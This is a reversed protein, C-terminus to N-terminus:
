PREEVLAAERALAAAEATLDIGVPCWTVCRGCGVCGSTGFQDVWTSLKHTMWQRYRSAVSARVPGGHVHSFDATFCSDWQRDRAHTGTALDSVEVVSTCFCTPCVMTCNGCALCRSAVEEWRPSTAAQRLLTPLDTDPMRKQICEAVAASQAQAAERDGRDATAAGLEALLSAGAASGVEVLLRHGREDILETLALDFGVEARPGTKMSTCFCTGGARACQVVVLFTDERRAVYGADQFPGGMLVHDQVRLAALECPRVGLLAYRPRPLPEPRFNLSGGEGEHTFLRTHAPLFAAKWASAGPVWAFRADDERRRLRYQGPAQVDEWGVPLEAASRLERYVVAGDRVTPGLVTHGRRGLADILGELAGIPLIAEQGVYM